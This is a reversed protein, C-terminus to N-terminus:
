VEEDDKGRGYKGREQKRQGGPKAKKLILAHGEVNSDDEVGGLREMEKLVIWQAPQAERCRRNRGRWHRKHKVKM